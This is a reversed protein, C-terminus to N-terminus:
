ETKIMKLVRLFGSANMLGQFIYGAKEIVHQSIANKETTYIWFIKTRKFFILPILRLAHTYLGKGRYEPNTYCPGIQLDDKSMFPFRFNKPIIFSYHAVKDGDMIYLIRLKGFTIFYWLYRKILESKDIGTKFITPKFVKYTFAGDASLCSAASEDRIISKKYYLKFMQLIKM